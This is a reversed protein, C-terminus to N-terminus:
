PRFVPLGSRMSRANWTSLGYGRRSEPRGKGARALEAFRRAPAPTGVGRRRVNAEAM